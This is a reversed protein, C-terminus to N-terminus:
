FHHRQRNHTTSSLPKVSKRTTQTKDTIREFSERFCRALSAGRRDILHVDVGDIHCTLCLERKRTPSTRCICSGCHQGGLAEPEEERRVSRRCFGNLHSFLRSTASKVRLFILDIRFLTTAACDQEADDILHVDSSCSRRFQLLM